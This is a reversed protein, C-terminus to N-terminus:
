VQELPSLPRIKCSGKVGQRLATKALSDAMVNLQQPIILSSFSVKDDLHSYVHHYHIQTPLSNLIDRFASLVDTQSQKEPLLRLSDNGHRVVGSNDCYVPIEAPHTTSLTSVQM